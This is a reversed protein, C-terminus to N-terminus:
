HDFKVEGSLPAPHFLMPLLVLALVGLTSYYYVDLNAILFSQKQIYYSAIQVAHNPNHIYMSWSHYITSQMSINSIMDHWSVQQQTSLIVAAIATGISSGFNRFFNFVGSVDSNINNPIGAYTIHMLNLFFGMMGFGQGLSIIIILTTNHSDSFQTLAYCSLSFILLGFMLLKRADIKKGLLVFIPAALFAAVGRPATIYGAMDVPYGYVQQLLTPFFTFTGAMCIMFLFMITFSLVCNRYKFIEFNVVSKGLLGRWIFFGVFLIALIFIIVLKNSQFWDYRNGDDFFYELCGFGIVMFVFSIYDIKTRVIKTFDLLSYLVLFAFVCIPVNVYFIWRWSWNEAIAGGMVPGIIPGLVITSSVVAMMKSLEGGEFNDSVYAQVLAPMFAGGVGQIIRFFVMEDVSTALGCLISSVGFLFTSALAVRKIGFRKTVFGTLPIFVAAAVIYSTITLSIEDINASLSGMISPLAVAVITLDIIEALSLLALTLAIITRTQLWFNENDVSIKRKLVMYYNKRYKNIIYKIKIVFMKARRNTKDM